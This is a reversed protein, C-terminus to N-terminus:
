EFISADLTPWEAWPWPFLRIRARGGDFPAEGCTLDSTTGLDIGLRERESSALCARIAESDMEEAGIIDLRRIGYRDPPITKCGAAVLGICVVLFTSAFPSRM